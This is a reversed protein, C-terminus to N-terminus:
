FAIVLLIVTIIIAGISLIANTTIMRKFTIEEKKYGLYHAYAIFITFMVIIVVMALLTIELTGM